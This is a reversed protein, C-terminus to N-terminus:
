ASSPMRSTSLDRPSPSTYLLCSDDAAHSIEDSGPGPVSTVRVVLASTGAGSFNGRDNEGSISVPHNLKTVGITRLNYKKGKDAMVADNYTFGIWQGDGSFEHRHTGGRLAGSTFPFLVDRADTVIPHTPNDEDVLM